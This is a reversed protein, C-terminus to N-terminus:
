RTAGEFKKHSMQGRVAALMAADLTPQTTAQQRREGAIYDERQKSLDEIKKQMETRSKIKEEVYQKRQAPTMKRLNEPLDAEKVDEIKVKGETCADALDWSGNRYLGSAKARCRLVVAGAAAAAPATAANTDQSVQRALGEEGARGYPIYTTNIDTSLKALEQDQPAPIAVVAHNTDISMFAGNALTAGDRWGTSVGAQEPGCHITNIIIDRDKAVKCPERFDIPGQNFPENGAIFIVKYAEPSESWELQALASKLTAGCFESGGNTKLAFLKESVKDLDDTFPLILQIWHERPNLSDNGYQYLAVNLNPTQGDRKTRALDNVVIWLQSRAQDILGDMSNSTDLLIALQILPKDGLRAAPHAAPARDKAFAVTAALALILAASFMRVYTM